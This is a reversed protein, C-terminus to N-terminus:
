PKRAIIGVSERGDLQLDEPFDKRAIMRADEIIFGACKFTRTFVDPDLLHMKSPLFAGREPAIAMVDDIYGPWKEGARKRSEYIPIFNQFNRLYPTEAVVFAKGGSKLWKFLTAASKEIRDGDFFHMVRCVLVAGLSNPEIELQEPFEGAKLSLKSKLHEPARDKLIELHAGEIDNAIVTAGNELAPLTAIGYAAGIDLVPGPALPSFEIFLKSFEDLSSTMYGMNNLTKIFGNLEAEPMKAQNTSNVTM